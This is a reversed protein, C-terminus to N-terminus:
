HKLIGENTFQLGRLSMNEVFKANEITLEMKKQIEKLPMGSISSIDVDNAILFANIKGITINTNTLDESTLELLEIDDLEKCLNYQVKMEKEKMEEMEEIPKSKPFLKSIKTPKTQIFIAVPKREQVDPKIMMKQKLKQKRM